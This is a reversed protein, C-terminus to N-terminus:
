REYIDVGDLTRGGARQEKKDEKRDNFIPEQPPPVQMYYRVQIHVETNSFRREWICLM